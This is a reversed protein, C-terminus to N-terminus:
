FYYAGSIRAFFKTGPTFHIETVPNPENQLRSETDFQAEKWPQNTLNEISLGIEYSPRRYRIVADLLLYGEAVTSNDENAPRDALYRYRLSANFGSPFSAQLGGTSSLTPALPIYAAEEPEDIARPQTLNIDTNFFLWDTLQARVSLDAGMRRSRGSPETVGADGVYVFEQDLWLYWLAAQAVIRRGPKFVVGLDAGYAPPLIELGNQPVVARTDNSHFGKGTQLYFQWRPNLTYYLNLKPSVIAAHATQNRYISDLQDLYQHYFQDFRLGAKLTLRNSMEITEDLYVAANWETIDGLQITNLTTARNLSNSLESDDTQDHRLQVGITQNWATNGWQFRKSFSGNYGLIDRAEKQRIQDGNVPDNLFFTFNSYLEFDYRSFFLQHKLLGAPLAHTLTASLNTRGTQGGETPDIAGFFGILNQDVARNPIQGSHDWQSRFHSFLLTLRQNDDLAAHYKAQVNIRNFNQPADFYGNSFVYETAMYASQGREKASKGLLDVASMLRYSEYQGAELKVVSEDLADVTRFDVFGATTFNGQDTYYPGKAFNVASVLEPIVFHLDAYGQGHAHSVMNVPMGDVSLRIDTGHDIDFGRLFIQEAKGGGAHQAIFLGPVSRLIEQSNQIPRLRIDIQNLLQRQEPTRHATVSVESLEIQKPTLWVKTFTTAADQVVLDLAQKQQYGLYSVELAYRGEELGVFQFQGLEDSITQQNKELLVVLAGALPLQTNEDLVVGKLSGQHALAPISAWFLAVLVWVLKTKLAHKMMLCNFFVFPYGNQRLPLLNITIM